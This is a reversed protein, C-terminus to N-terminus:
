AVKKTIAVNNIQNKKMLAWGYAGVVLATPAMAPGALAELLMSFGLIPFFVFAFLFIQALFPLGELYQMISQGTLLWQLIGTGETQEHQNSECLFPSVGMCALRYPSLWSHFLLSESLWGRLASHEVIGAGYGLLSVYTSAQQGNVVIKGSPTLPMYMGEKNVLSIKTVTEQSYSLVDGVKVSGAPVTESGVFIFHDDTLEIPKKDSVDTHIQVFTQKSSTDYHGFDYVPEYKGGEVLVNDNLQLDKMMVSGKGRVQVTTDASFCGGGGDGPEGTEPCGCNVSLNTHDDATVIFAFGTGGDEPNNGEVVDGCNMNTKSYDANATTITGPASFKIYLALNTAADCVVQCNASKGRADIASNGRKDNLTTGTGYSNSVVGCAEELNRHKLNHSAAFPTAAALLLIASTSSLKM